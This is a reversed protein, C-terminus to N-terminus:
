KRRLVDDSWPDTADLCREVVKFPPPEPRVEGSETEQTM